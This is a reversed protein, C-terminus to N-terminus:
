RASAEFIMDIVTPTLDPDVIGFHDIGEVEVYEARFGADRLSAATSEGDAAAPDDSGSVLLLAPATETASESTLTAAPTPTATPTPHAESPQPAQVSCAGAMVSVILLLTGRRVTRM